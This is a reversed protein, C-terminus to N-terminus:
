PLTPADIRDADKWLSNSDITSNLLSLRLYMALRQITSLPHTWFKALPSCHCWSLIVNLKLM